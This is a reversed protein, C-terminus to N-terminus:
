RTAERRVVKADIAQDSTTIAFEASLGSEALQIMREVAPQKFSVKVHLFREGRHEETAAILRFPEEGLTCNTLRVDSVYRAGLPVKTEVSLSPQNEDWMSIQDSSFFHYLPGVMEVKAVLPDGKRQISRIVPHSGPRKKFPVFAPDGFLVAGTSMMILTDQVTRDREIPQGDVLKAVKLGDYGQQLHALVVNNANDRNLEGISQGATALTIADGFMAPGAPRPSVYAVYGAVGTKLMNLCFSEEAPVTKERVTMSQYDNDYWRSTVGTYCAVNLVVSGDYRQGSLHQYTPGGVVQRPYGHGAFLLISHDMLKPMVGRVFADDPAPHLVDGGIANATQGAAIMHAAQNLTGRRLPLPQTASVSETLGNGAVGLMALDARRPLQEARKGAGALAVATDASDGTIFGYAFDVFPDDDVKTALVLFKRVLNEDLANPRLVIAVYRPKSQRFEELLATVESANGTVIRAGRSRELERVAAFYPDSEPVLSALLYEGGKTAAGVASPSAAILIVGYASLLQLWRL